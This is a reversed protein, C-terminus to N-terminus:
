ALLNGAVPKRRFFALGALMAGGALTLPASAPEPVAVTLYGNGNWDTAYDGLTSFSGPNFVYWDFFGTNDSVEVVNGYSPVNPQFFVVPSSGAACNTCYELASTGYSSVVSESLLTSTAFQFTVTDGANDDGVFTYHYTTDAHAPLAMLGVTLVCVTLFLISRYKM